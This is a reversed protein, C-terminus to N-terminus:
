SVIIKGDKVEFPVKELGTSVPGRIVQGAANFVAGHCPCKFIADGTDWMVNCGLHPCSASFVTPGQAGVLVILQQGRFEVYQAQGPSLRDMPIELPKNGGVSLPRGLFSAVPFGVMGASLVTLGGIALQCFARRGADDAPKPATHPGPAATPPLNPSDHDM